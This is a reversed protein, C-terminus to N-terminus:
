NTISHVTVTQPDAATAAGHEKLFLMMDDENRLLDRLTTKTLIADLSKQVAGWLLRVACDGSHACNRELGSHRDCFHPNFFSGGLLSLIESVTVQDAPRSLTYGGAQGRVSAVLGGLRLIRMLKAVNPVSLGEARSIEPISHSKTEGHRAMFLLCRLGYEEQASLKM